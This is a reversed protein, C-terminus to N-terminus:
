ASPSPAPKYAFRWACLATLSGPLGVLPSSQSMPFFLRPDSQATLISLMVAPVTFGLAAALIWHAKFFRYIVRWIPIAVCLLTLLMFASLFLGIIFNDLNSQLVVSATGLATGVAVGQVVVSRIPRESRRYIQM